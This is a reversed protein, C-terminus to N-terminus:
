YKIRDYNSCSYISVNFGKEDLAEVLDWFMIYIESAVAENTAYHAIPFRFGTDGLFYFQMVHSALKPKEGAVFYDGYIM